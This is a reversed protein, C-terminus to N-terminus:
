LLTEGEELLCAALAVVFARLCWLKYPCSLGYTEVGMTDKRRRPQKGKVPGV